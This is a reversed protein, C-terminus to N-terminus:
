GNIGVKGSGQIASDERDAAPKTQVGTGLSQAMASMLQSARSDNAHEDDRMEARGVIYNVLAPYYADTIPLSTTIQGVSIRTPAASYQVRLLQGATAPPYVFFTRNSRPHRAWNVPTSNALSMWGPLFRDLSERPVETVVNGGVIGFVEMLRDATSPISQIAGNICTMTTITEFLDPRLIAMEALGDNAYNALDTDSWTVADTDNLIGRASLMADAYTSM